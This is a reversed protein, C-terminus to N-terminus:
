HVTFGRYNTNCSTRTVDCYRQTMIYYTDGLNALFYLNLVTYVFKIVFFSTCLCRFENFDSHYSM